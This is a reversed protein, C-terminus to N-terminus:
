TLTPCNPPTLSSFGYRARSPEATTVNSRTKTQLQTWKDPLSFHLYPDWVIVVHGGANEWERGMGRQMCPITQVFYWFLNFLIRFFDEGTSVTFNGINFRTEKCIKRKDWAAFIWIWLSLSKTLSTEAGGVRSLFTAAHFHTASLPKWEFRFSVFSSFM